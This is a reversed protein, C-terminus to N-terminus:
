NSGGLAKTVRDAIGEQACAKLLYIAKRNKQYAFYEWLALWDSCGLTYVVKIGENTAVQCEVVENSLELKSLIQGRKPSSDTLWDSKSGIRSMGEEFGIRYEGSTLILVELQVRNGFPILISKALAIRYSGRFFWPNPAAPKRTQPYLLDIILDEWQHYELSFRHLELYGEKLLQRLYLAVTSLTYSKIVKGNPIKVSIGQLYNQKLFSKVDKRSQGVAKALQREGMVMVGNPLKYTAWAHRGWHWQAMVVKPLEDSNQQPFTLNKNTTINKYSNM